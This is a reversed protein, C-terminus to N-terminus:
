RAGGPGGFGGVGDDEEPRGAVKGELLDKRGEGPEDTVLAQIHRDDPDGTRAVQLAELLAGPLAELGVPDGIGARDPRQRVAQPVDLAGVVVDLCEVGQAPLEAFRLM